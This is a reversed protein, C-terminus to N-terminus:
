AVLLLFVLSGAAVDFLQVVLLRCDTFDQFSQGTQANAAGIVVKPSDFIPITNDSYKMEM